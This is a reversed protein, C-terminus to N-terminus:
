KRLYKPPALNDRRCTKLIVDEIQKKSIGYESLEAAVKEVNKEFRKGTFDPLFPWHLSTTKLHNEGKWVIIEWRERQHLYTAKVIIRPDKM